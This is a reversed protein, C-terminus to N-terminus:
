FLEKKDRLFSINVYQSYNPYVLIMKEHATLSWVEARPAEPKAAGASTFLEYRIQDETLGSALLAEKCGMIMSEPGCLYAADVSAGSCFEKLLDACRAQDLRGSLLTADVPERTLLYFVRLRDLHRDKLDQIAERFM